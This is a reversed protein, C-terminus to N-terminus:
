DPNERLGEDREAFQTEIGLPIVIGDRQQCAGDFQHGAAFGRMVAQHQGIAVGAVHGRRAAFLRFEVFQLLRRFALEGIEELFEALLCHLQREREREAAAAEVAVRGCNLSM